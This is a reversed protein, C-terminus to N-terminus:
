RNKQLERVAFDTAKNLADYNEALMPCYAMEIQSLSYAEALSAAFGGSELGIIVIKSM